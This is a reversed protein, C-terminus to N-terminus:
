ICAHVFASRLQPRGADATFRVDSALYTMKQGAFSQHMVFSINQIKLNGETSECQQKRSLFTLADQM